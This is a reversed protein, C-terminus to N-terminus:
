KASNHPYSPTALSLKHLLRGELSPCFEEVYGLMHDKSNFYATTIAERECYFCVELGKVVKRISVLKVQEPLKTLFHEVKRQQPPNLKLGYLELKIMTYSRLKTIKTQSWVFGVLTVALQRGM